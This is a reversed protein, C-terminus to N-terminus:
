LDLFIALIKFNQLFSWVCCVKQLQKILHIFIFHIWGSSYANCLPCPIRSPRVSLCVSLRVSRRISPTFWYVGGVVWCKRQTPPIIVSYNSLWKNQQYGILLICVSYCNEANIGMVHNPYWLTYIPLSQFALPLRVLYRCFCHLYSRIELKSSLYNDFNFHCQCDLDILGLILLSRLLALIFNRDLNPFGLAM